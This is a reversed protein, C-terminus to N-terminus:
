FLPFKKGEKPLHWHNAFLAFKVAEKIEKVIDHGSDSRGHHDEHHQGDRVGYDHSIEKISGNGPNNLDAAIEHKINSKQPGCPKQPSLTMHLDIEERAM